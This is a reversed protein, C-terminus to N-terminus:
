IKGLNYLAKNGYFRVYRVGRKEMIILNIRDVRISQHLQLIDKKGGSVENAM